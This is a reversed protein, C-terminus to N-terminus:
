LSLSIYKYEINATLLRCDIWFGFNNNIPLWFKLIALLSTQRHTHKRECLFHLLITQKSNQWLFDERIFLKHPGSVEALCLLLAFNLRFEHVLSFLKSSQSKLICIQKSAFATIFQQIDFTNYLDSLACKLTELLYNPM